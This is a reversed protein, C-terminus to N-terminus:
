TVHFSSIAFVRNGVFASEEPIANSVDNTEPPAHSGSSLRTPRTVSQLIVCVDYPVRFDTYTASPRAHPRSRDMFRLERTNKRTRTNAPEHAHTQRQELM